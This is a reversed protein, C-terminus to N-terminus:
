SKTINLTVRYEDAEIAADADKPYPDLSQLELTYEGFTFSQQNLDPAPNTNFELEMPESGEQQVTIIGRAEGTWFCEVNTPCRSDDLVSDFTLSLDESEIVATQGKGVTFVDDVLVTMTQDATNGCAVLGLVIVGMLVRRVVFTLNM